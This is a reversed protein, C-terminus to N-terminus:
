CPSATRVTSAPPALLRASNPTSSAFCWNVFRWRRACCGSRRAGLEKRLARFVEDRADTGYDDAHKHLTDAQTAQLFAWLKDEAIFHDTDTVDTQELVGYSHVRVLFDALHQQFTLELAKRPM